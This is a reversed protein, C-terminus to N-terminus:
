IEKKMVYRQLKFGKKEFLRLPHPTLIEINTAGVKKSMKATAKLAEATIEPSTSFAQSVFFTKSSTFWGCVYGEPKSDKEVLILIKGADWECAEKLSLHLPVDPVASFYRLVLPLVRMFDFENRVIKSAIM